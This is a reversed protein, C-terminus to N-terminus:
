CSAKSRSALWNRYEAEDRFTLTKVTQDSEDDQLMKVQQYPTMDAIEQVSYGYRRAL